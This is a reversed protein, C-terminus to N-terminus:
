RKNRPAAAASRRAKRAEAPEAKAAEALYFRALRIPGLLFKANTRRRGELLADLPNALARRPAGSLLVAAAAAALLARRPAPSASPAATASPRCPCPLAARAARSRRSPALCASRLQAHLPAAHCAM